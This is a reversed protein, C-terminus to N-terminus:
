KLKQIDVISESKQFTSSLGRPLTTGYLTSYINCLNSLKELDVEMQMHTYKRCSMGRQDRISINRVLYIELIYNHKPTSTIINIKM